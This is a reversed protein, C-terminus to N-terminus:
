WSTARRRPMRGSAPRRSMCPGSVTCHLCLDVDGQLRAHEVRLTAGDLVGEGRQTKGADIIHALAFIDLEVQAVGVLGLGAGADVLHALLEEGVGHDLVIGDLDPSGSEHLPASRAGAPPRLGGRCPHYRIFEAMTTKGPELRSCSARAASRCAVPRSGTMTQCRSVSSGATSRMRM